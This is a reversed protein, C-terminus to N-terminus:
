RLSLITTCRLYNCSCVTAPAINENKRLLPKRLASLNKHVSKNLIFAICLPRLLSSSTPPLSKRFFILVISRERKPIGCVLVSLRLIFHYDTNRLDGKRSSRSPLSSSSSSISKVGRPSSLSHITVAAGRAFTHKREQVHM